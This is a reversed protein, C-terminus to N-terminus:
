RGAPAQLEGLERRLTQPSAPKQKLLRQVEVAKDLQEISDELHGEVADYVASNMRVNGDTPALRIAQRLYEGTTERHERSSASIVARTTPVSAAYPNLRASEAAHRQAAELEHRRGDGTDAEALRFYSRALYLHAQALSSRDVTEPVLRVYTELDDVAGDLWRRAEERERVAGKYYRALGSLFYALPAVDNEHANFDIRTEMVPADILGRIGRPNAVGSDAGFDELEIVIGPPPDVLLLRANIYSTGDDDVYISGWLAMQANQAEAVERARVRYSEIRQGPPTVYTIIAGGQLDHIKELFLDHLQRARQKGRGDGRASTFEFTVLKVEAHPFVVRHEREFYRPDTVEIKIGAWAALWPLLLLAALAPRCRGPRM